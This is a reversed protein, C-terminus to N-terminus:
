VDSSTGRLATDLATILVGAEEIGFVLPPRIKLVDNRPGTRGVLVGRDRMANVVANTREPGELEVGILLGLGRVDVIAPHERSLRELRERLVEAVRKTHPIIREDDIADLTALAAQAAVPNGGFTSFLREAFGSAEVAERRTLVAAVPYGNGMPKGLVVFDPTVGLHAFSWLHEGSRGHGVQVEDAVFLGGADRTADAIETLRAPTPPHIGDSTFGPDIFTAALPHGRDALLAAATAVEGGGADHPIREVHTPAFGEPWEEPSLDAMAASVGHYAHHTVIAGSRGTAAAAIRWAIDNAESGSNVIMAGDLRAEPPMTALLREALEVLPEYLYRANTNLARTQRVIAETVRPHCHGLVPVNNYADLIRRGDADILWAGEGSVVHVPDAYTLPTLAAGLADCRRRALVDKTVPPAPAGLERSFRDGGVEGILELLRWSDADWSQINTANEPYRSVRWASIVVIQALRTAVLDGLLEVEEPELPVRSSYGDIVIRGVRFVEDAERARMLSALAVAFDAVQATHVADGFDVIGCILGEDDLLVNDLNLDGHVVQARLRPWRPAVREEYRDLVAEALRRKGRDPIHELHPRLRAAHALDWLLERGAAPHFFGRLALNLRAHTGGYARVAGDSLDPAGAGGGSRGHLREFLRVFHIGDPGEVTTRYAAAGAAESVPRPRAIPLEPDVRLAHLIAEAELELTAASEGLNSIKIVGSGAPGEALFTQDRESGLDRVAGDLGFLEAAIRAVDDASFSPPTEELVSTM